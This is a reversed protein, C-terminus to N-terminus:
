LVYTRPKKVSQPKKLLFGAMAAFSMISLSTVIGSRIIEQYGFFRSDEWIKAASVIILVLGLSVREKKIWAIKLSLSGFLNVLARMHPFYRPTAKCYAEYQSGFHSHLSQEEKKTQPIYICLFIFIFVLLTWPALLTAIIGLAILFTGFYMPNRVIRYPGAVVLAHGQRSHEEKYGRAAIRILFGAMVFCIGIIDLVEDVFRSQWTYVMFRFFVVAACAAFTM